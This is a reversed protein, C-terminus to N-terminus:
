GALATPPGAEEEGGYLAREVSAYTAGHEALVDAVVGPRSTLALLLHEAGIFRDGRGLAVRLASELVGKAGATFPRRPSWWRRPPREGGLAGEGHVDEVRAVIADVDIGLGGLAATDARTLGGRRRAEALGAELSERRDRVGLATLAFAARGQGAELLSLLLHEESVHDAGSRESVAVAGTVASRAERTFREFM